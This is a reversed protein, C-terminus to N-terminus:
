YALLAATASTDSPDWCRLIYTRKAGGNGNYLSGDTWVGTEANYSPLTYKNDTQVAPSTWGDETDELYAKWGDSIANKAANMPVFIVANASLMDMFQNGGRDFYTKTTPPDGEFFVTKMVQGQDRFAERGFSNMNPGFQITELTKVNYFVHNDMSTMGPAYFGSIKTGNFANNQLATIALPLSFYGTLSTCANFVQKGFSTLGTAPSLDAKQLNSCGKFCEDGLSTLSAPCKVSRLKKNDQFTNSGIWALTYQVTEGDSNCIPASLDLDVSGDPCGTYFENNRNNYIALTSAGNATLRVDIITIAPDDDSTMTTRNANTDPTVSLTWKTTAKAPLAAALALAALTYILKRKM